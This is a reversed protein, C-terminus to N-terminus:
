SHCYEYYGCKECKGNNLLSIDFVDINSINKLIIKIKDEELKTKEIIYEKKNEICVLKGKFDTYINKLLYLYYLLQYKNGEFNSCSKKYEIIYKNKLDIEDVEFNDFKIKNNEEDLLKGIFLNEHESISLKNKEIYVKNHCYFYSQILFPNVFVETEKM